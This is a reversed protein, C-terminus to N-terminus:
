ANPGKWWDGGWPRPEIDSRIRPNDLSVNPPDCIEVMMRKGDHTRKGWEEYKDGQYSLHENNHADCVYFPDFWLAIPDADWVTLEQLKYALHRDETTSLHEPYGGVSNFADLSIGWAAHFAKDSQDKRWYTLLRHLMKDHERYALAQSPRSWPARELAAATASLGWPLVLDDDDWPCIADTGRPALRAAANRKAGLTPYRKAVSEIRWRDGEIPYYQGADDLIVMYRDEHDQKEFCRILYGLLRPRLYTCTCVTIKM